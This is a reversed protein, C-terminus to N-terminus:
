ILLNILVSICPYLTSSINIYIGFETLIKKVTKPCFFVKINNMIVDKNLNTTKEDNQLWVQRMYEAYDAIKSKCWSSISEKKRMVSDVLNALLLHSFLYRQHFNSRENGKKGGFPICIWWKFQNILHDGKGFEFKQEDSRYAHIRCTKGHKHCWLVPVYLVRFFNVCLICMEHTQHYDIKCKEHRMRGDFCTGQIESNVNVLHQM